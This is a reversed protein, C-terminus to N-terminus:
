IKSNWSGTTNEAATVRPQCSKKESRRVDRCAAREQLIWALFLHRFKVSRQLCFKAGPVGSQLSSLRPQSLQSGILFDDEGDKREVKEEFFKELFVWLFM